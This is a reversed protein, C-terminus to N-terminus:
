IYKLMPDDERVRRRKYAEVEAETLEKDLGANLSSYARKRDDMNTQAQQEEKRQKEMAKAM